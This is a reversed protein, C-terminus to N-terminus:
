TIGTDSPLRPYSTLDWIHPSQLPILDVTLWLHGHVIPWLYTTPGNGFSCGPGVLQHESKFYREVLLNGGLYQHQTMLIWVSNWQPQLQEGFPYPYVLVLIADQHVTQQHFPLSSDYNNRLIVPPRGGHVLVDCPGGPRARLHFKNQLVWHLNKPSELEGHLLLSVNV